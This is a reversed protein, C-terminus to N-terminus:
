KHRREAIWSAIMVVAFMILCFWMCFSEVPDNM